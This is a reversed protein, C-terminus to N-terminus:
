PRLMPRSMKPWYALEKSADRDYDESSQWPMIREFVGAQNGTVIRYTVILNDQTANFKQTKKAAADLFQKEKGEKAKYHFTNWYEANAGRQAHSVMAFACLFVTLMFKNM